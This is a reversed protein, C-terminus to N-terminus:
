AAIPSSEEVAKCFGDKTLIPYGFMKMALSAVPPPELQVSRTLQLDRFFSTPNSDCVLAGKNMVVVRNSYDGVLRMDHTIMLITTGKKNLESMFNM